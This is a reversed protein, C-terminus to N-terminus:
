LKFYFAKAEEEIGTKILHKDLLKIVAHCTGRMEQEVISKYRLVMARQQDSSNFEQEDAAALIQRWSLRKTGMFNKYAVSLLNREESTLPSGLLAISDMFEVM